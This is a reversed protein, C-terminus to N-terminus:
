DLFEVTIKAKTSTGIAPRTLYVSTFIPNKVDDAPKFVASHKKEDTRKVEITHTTM